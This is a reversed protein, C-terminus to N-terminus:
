DFISKQYPISEKVKVPAKKTKVTPTEYEFQIPSLGLVIGESEARDSLIESREQGRLKAHLERHCNSCLLDCKLAEDVVFLWRKMIWNSVNTEKVDPDRHHFELADICRHYGCVKCKGGLMDILAQKRELRAKRQWRTYKEKGVPKLRLDRNNRKYFPSCVLCFSRGHLYHIVGDVTIQKPIDRGCKVCIAHHENNEM